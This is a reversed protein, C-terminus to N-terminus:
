PVFQASLQSRVKAAITRLSIQGSQKSKVALPYVGKDGRAGLHGVGFAGQLQERPKGSHM